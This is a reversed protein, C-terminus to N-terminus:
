GKGILSIRTYIGYSFHRLINKPRMYGSLKTLIARFTNSSFDTIIVRTKNDDDTQLTKREIFEPETTLM